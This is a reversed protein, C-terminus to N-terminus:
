PTWDDEARKLKWLGNQLRNEVDAPRPEAGTVIGALKKERCRLCTPEFFDARQVEPYPVGTRHFACLPKPPM